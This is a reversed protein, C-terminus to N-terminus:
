QASILQFFGFVCFVLCLISLAITGLWFPGPQESRFYRKPPSPSDDGGGILISGDKLVSIVKWLIVLGLLLAGSGSLVKNRYAMGFGFGVLGLIGIAVGLPNPPDYDQM